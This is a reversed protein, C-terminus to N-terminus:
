RLIAPLYVHSSLFMNMDIHEWTGDVPYQLFLPLSPMDRAFEEQVIAYYVKRQNQTLNTDDGLKAAESASQNCWGMYNKGQWGIQPSPIQDCAYRPAVQVQEEALWAFGAMEFDRRALGTNAGFLRKAFKMGGRIM